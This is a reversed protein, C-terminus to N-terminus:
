IRLPTPGTPEPLGDAHPGKAEASLTVAVTPVGGDSESSASITKAEEVLRPMRPMRLNCKTRTSVSPTDGRQLTLVQRAHQIRRWRWRSAAAVLAAVAVGAGVVIGALLPGAHSSGGEIKVDSSSDESDVM